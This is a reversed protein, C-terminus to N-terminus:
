MSRCYMDDIITEKQGTFLSLGGLWLNLSQFHSVSAVRRCGRFVESLNVPSDLVDAEM